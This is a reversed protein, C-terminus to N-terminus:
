SIPGSATAPSSRRSIPPAPFREVRVRLTVSAKRTGAWCGNARKKHAAVGAPVRTGVDLGRYAVVINTMFDLAVAHHDVINFSMGVTHRTAMTWHVAGHRVKKTRGQWLAPASGDGAKVPTIACGHCRHVVLTLTTRPGAGAAADGAPAAIPAVAPAVAVAGTLAAATLIRLAIRYM